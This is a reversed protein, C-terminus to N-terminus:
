NILHFHDDVINDDCDLEERNHESTDLFDIVNQMSLVSHQKSRKPQM